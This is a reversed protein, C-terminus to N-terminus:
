NETTVGAVKFVFLTAFSFYLVIVYHLIFTTFLSLTVEVIVIVHQSSLLLECVIKIYAIQLVENISNM